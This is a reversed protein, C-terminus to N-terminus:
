ARAAAAEGKFEYGPKSARAKHREAIHLFALVLFYYLFFEQLESYRIQPFIGADMLGFRKPIEALQILIAIPMFWFGPVFPKFVKPMWRRVRAQMFPIVLGVLISAVELLARPKQDFWTGINHLNTEQQDNLQLFIGEAQWKFFHQGYSAEEGAVFLGAVVAFACIATMVTDGSRHFAFVMRLAMFAAAMPLVIHSIELWGTETEFSTIYYSHHFFAVFLLLPMVCAPILTYLVFKWITSAPRSTRAAAAEAAGYSIDAM